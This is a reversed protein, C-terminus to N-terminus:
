VQAENVLNDGFVFPHAVDDLSLAHSLKGEGFELEVFRRKLQQIDGEKMFDLHAFAEVIPLPCTIIVRRSNFEINGGKMEVNMPYRDALRLLFSFSLQPNVRYDDIIVTEQQKYGCFWKTTGDKVYCSDPTLNMAWRSKGTGTAGFCWYGLTPSNRRSTSFLSILQNVGRYYKIYSAGHSSAVDLETGGNRVLEAVADLDTRKGQGLPAEGKSWVDGDKSCYEVNQAGTGKSVFVAWRSPVGQHLSIARQLSKISYRKSAPFEVYAQLHPTGNEGVEKGCIAFKTGPLSKFSEFEAETFNNLTMTFRRVRETENISVPPSVSRATPVPPLVAQVEERSIDVLNNAAEIDAADTVSNYDGAVQRNLQPLPLMEECRRLRKRPTTEEDSSDALVDSDFLWDDCIPIQNPEEDSAIFNRDDSNESMCEEIESDSSHAAEEEFM